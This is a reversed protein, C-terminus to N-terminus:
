YANILKKNSCCCTIIIHHTIFIHTFNHYWFTPDYYWKHYEVNISSKNKLFVQLDKPCQNKFNILFIEISISIELELESFACIISFTSFFVNDFSTSQTNKSRLFWAPRFKVRQFFNSMICCCSLSQSYAVHMLQLFTYLNLFM